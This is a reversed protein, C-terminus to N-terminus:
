DGERHKRRGIDIKSARFRFYISLSQHRIFLSSGFYNKKDQHEIFVAKRSTNVGLEAISLVSM